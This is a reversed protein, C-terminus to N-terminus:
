KVLVVGYEILPALSSDPRYGANMLDAIVQAANAGVPCPPAGSSRTCSYISASYPSASWDQSSALLVVEHQATPTTGARALATLALALTATTLILIRKM